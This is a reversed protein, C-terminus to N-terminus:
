ALEAQVEGDDFMAARIRISSPPKQSGREWIKHNVSADIKIQSPDAKMHRILFKRILSVARSSRKWRPALKAERLPITYIQEKVADEAM